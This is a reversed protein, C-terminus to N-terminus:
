FGSGSLSLGLWQTSTTTLPVRKLAQKPRRRLQQTFADAPGNSPPSDPTLGPKSAPSTAARAEKDTGGFLKKLGNFMTM